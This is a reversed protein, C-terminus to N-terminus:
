MPVSRWFISASGVCGFNIIVSGPTPYRNRSSLPYFDLIAVRVDCPTRWRNCQQLEGGTPIKGVVETLLDGELYGGSGDEVEFGDADTVRFTAPDAGAVVKGEDYVSSADTIHSTTDKSYQTGKFSRHSPLDIINKLTDLADYDYQLPMIQVFLERFRRGTTEVQIRGWSRPLVQLVLSPNVSMVPILHTPTLSDAMMARYRMSDIQRTKTRACTIDAALNPHRISDLLYRVTDIRQGPSPMVYLGTGPSYLATWISDVCGHLRLWVLHHLAAASRVSLWGCQKM